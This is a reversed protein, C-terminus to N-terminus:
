FLFAQGQGALTYHTPAYGLSAAQRRAEVLTVAGTLRIADVAKDLKVRLYYANQPHGDCFAQDHQVIM